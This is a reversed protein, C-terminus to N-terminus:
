RGLARQRHQRQRWFMRAATLFKRRNPDAARLKAAKKEFFRALRAYHASKDIRAEEVADLLAPAPYRRLWDALSIRPM